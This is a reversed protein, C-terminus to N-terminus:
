LPHLSLFFIRILSKRIQKKVMYYIKITVFKSAPTRLRPQNSIRIARISVTYRRTINLIYAQPNNRIDLKASAVLSEPVEM